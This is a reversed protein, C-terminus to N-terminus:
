AVRKNNCSIIRFIRKNNVRREAFLDEWNWGYKEMLREIDIIDNVYIPEAFAKELINVKEESTAAEKIALELNNLEIFSMNNLYEDRVIMVSYMDIGWNKKWMKIVMESTLNAKMIFEGM